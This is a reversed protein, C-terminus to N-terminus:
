PHLHRAGEATGETRLGDPSTEKRSGDRLRKNEVRGDALAADIAELTAIVSGIEEAALRDLPQAFPLSMLDAAVEAARPALVRGDRSYIGHVVGHTNDKAAPVLAKLNGAPNAVDTM